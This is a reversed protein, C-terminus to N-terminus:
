SEAFLHLNKGRRGCIISSVAISMLQPDAAQSHCSIDVTRMARHHRDSSGLRHLYGAEGLDKEAGESTRPCIAGARDSGVPCGCMITELKVGRIGKFAYRYGTSVHPRGPLTRLGELFPLLDEDLLNPM